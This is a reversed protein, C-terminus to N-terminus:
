STAPAPTTPPLGTGHTVPTLIYSTASADPLPTNVDAYLTCGTAAITMGLCSSANSLCYPACLEMSTAGVIPGKKKSEEASFGQGATVPGIAKIPPNGSVFINWGTDAHFYTNGVNSLLECESTDAKYQFGKCGKTGDCLTNCQRITLSGAPIFPEIIFGNNHGLSYNLINSYAIPAEAAADYKAVLAQLAADSILAAKPQIPKNIILYATAVLGAILSCVICGIM